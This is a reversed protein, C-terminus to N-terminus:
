CLMLPTVPVTVKQSSILLQSSHMSSFCVFTNHRVIYLTCTMCRRFHHVLHRGGCSRGLFTVTTALMPTISTDLPRHRRSFICDSGVQNNESQQREYCQPALLHQAAHEDGGLCAAHLLLPCSGASCASCSEHCSSGSSHIQVVHKFQQIM